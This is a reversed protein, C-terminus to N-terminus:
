GNAEAQETEQMAEAADNGSEEMAIAWSLVSHALTSPKKHEFEQAAHIFMLYAANPVRESFADLDNPTVDRMVQACAYLFEASIKCNREHNERQSVIEQYKEYANEVTVEDDTSVPDNM